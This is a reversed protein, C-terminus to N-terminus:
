PKALAVNLTCPGASPDTTCFPNVANPLSPFSLPVADAGGVATSVEHLMGDSGSIVITGTDVSMDASLPTANNQLEIGGTVSGAIFSYVLISSTNGNVLYLQTGDASTFFNVYTGSQITGENLEIRQVSTFNLQQPCLTAPDAPPSITSTVIDFGTADLVLVHIGDPIPNGFSDAGDIHLAPLVKTLIPDAPLPVSAAVQNNCNAFATLNASGGAAAESIMTFAGNPSFVVDKGAGSLSTPGQLAQSPSYIYLSNGTSGGIIFTKLTDPSFAAITASPITLATPSGPNGTNVIYVQNPTHITDSFAAFAGTASIGLVKGTVSGLSTFPNSTTGFSAPNILQAGFDSGMVVKDGALTFLLSNPSVPLGNANGATAKATSLYYAASGCAAPPNKSCGTSSALVSIPSSAGTVVGSIAAMPSLETVKYPAPPTVFVPSAYVPVPILQQCSTFQPFLAHYFNTCDDVKQQTSLSAPVVPFGV